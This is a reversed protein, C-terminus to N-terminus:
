RDFWSVKDQFMRDLHHECEEEKQSNIHEEQTMKIHGGTEKSKPSSSKLFESAAPNNSEGLLIKADDLLQRATGTQGVSFAHEGKMYLNKGVIFKAFDIFALRERIIFSGEGICSKNATSFVIKHLDDIEDAWKSLTAVDSPITTNLYCHPKVGSMSLENKLKEIVPEKNCKLRKADLRGDNLELIEDLKGMILMEIALRLSLTLQFHSHGATTKNISIIDAILSNVEKTIRKNKQREKEHFNLLTVLLISLMVTMIIATEM